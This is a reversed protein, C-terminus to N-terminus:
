KKEPEGAAAAVEPAAFGAAILEPVLDAARGVTLAPRDPDREAAAILEAVAHEHAAFLETDPTRVFRLEDLLAHECIAAWWPQGPDPATAHWAVGVGAADFASRSAVFYREVDTRLAAAATDGLDGFRPPSRTATEAHLADEELAAVLGAGEEPKEFACRGAIRAVSRMRAALVRLERVYLADATDRAAHPGGGGGVAALAALLGDDAADTERVFAGDAGYEADLAGAASPALCASAVRLCTGLRLSTTYKSGGL